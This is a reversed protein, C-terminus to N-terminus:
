NTEDPTGKYLPRINRSIVRRRNSGNSEPTAVAVKSEAQTVCTARSPPGVGLLGASDGVGVLRGVIGAGEGVGVSGGDGVGTGDGLGDGPGECTGSSM